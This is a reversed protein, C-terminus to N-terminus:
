NTPVSFLRECYQNKEQETACDFCVQKGDGLVDRCDTHQNCRTCIKDPEDSIVVVNGVKTTM